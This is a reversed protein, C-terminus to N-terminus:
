NLFVPQTWAFLKEFGKDTETCYTIRARVYKDVRKPKYSAKLGNTGSLVIGNNGIFEITYGIQGTKDIRPVGYSDLIEKQTAIEDIEIVCKKATMKDTKLTVGNTSYFDGNLISQHISEITLEKSKVMVWGKFLSSKNPTNITLSHMDDAAVGYMIRGRSLLSDWKAEVSVHGEKGWNAVDPHGNYLEIHHLNTVPLIDSVQLASSFNPHNLFPIGEAKLIGDVHMQLLETKSLNTPSKITKIIEERRKQIDTELNPDGSFPVYEKINFATTHVSKKDTVEEGPIMLFDTRLNEPMKITDKDVLYNHDTLLLFNYGHDHYAKVVKFPASDGDSIISHCHTNGKFWLYGNEENNNCAFFFATLFLFLIFNKM